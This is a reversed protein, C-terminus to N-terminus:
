TETARAAMKAVQDFRDWPPGGPTVGAAIREFVPRGAPDGRAILGAAAELRADLHDDTLHAALIDRVEPIDVRTVGLTFLASTRIYSEADGALEALTAIAARRPDDPSLTVDYGEDLRRQGLARILEGAVRGRVVADRHRALPLIDSLDSANWPEWDHSHEAFAGIVQELAVPDTEATLRGRLAARTEPDAAEREYSMTHLLLSMFQRRAVSSDSLGAVAWRTTEERDLRRSLAFVLDDWEPSGAPHSGWVPEVGAFRDRTV